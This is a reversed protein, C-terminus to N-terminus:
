ADSERPTEERAKNERKKADLSLGRFEVLRGAKEWVILKRFFRVRPEFTVMWRLTWAALSCFQRVPRVQFERAGARGNDFWWKLFHKKNIKNEPVPHFVVASPEYRLREGAAILRRGFETDEGRIESGPNPGLDARFAGYKEFIKKRFAMNTGFPPGILEKAVPGQDFGPFGHRALPGDVSLWKPLSPPWQLIIRGGAGAWETNHLANTLNQLWAPDVTVDDDVFALVGGPAERIGANLAFSKGQQTELLYRFRGPFRRCFDEVVDRTQDCSNNDVVLVEWEVSNPLISAALSELAKALSQCRNYTCLIATIKIDVAM